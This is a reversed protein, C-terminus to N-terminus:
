EFASSLEYARRIATVIASGIALVASVISAGIGTAINQSQIHMAQLNVTEGVVIEATFGVYLFWGAILAFIASFFALTTESSM